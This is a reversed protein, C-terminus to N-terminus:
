HFSPLGGGCFLGRQLDGDWSMRPVQTLSIQLFMIVPTKLRWENGFVSLHFESRCERESASFM